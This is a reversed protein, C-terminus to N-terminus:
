QLGKLDQFNHQKWFAFNLRCVASQKTSFHHGENFVCALTIERVDTAGEQSFEVNLIPIPFAELVSFQDTLLELWHLESM